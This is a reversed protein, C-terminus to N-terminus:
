VDRGGKKRILQGCVALFDNTSKQLTWYSQRLQNLSDLLFLCIDTLSIVEFEHETQNIQIQGILAAFDAPETEPLSGKLNQQQQSRKQAAASIFQNIKTNHALLADNPLRLHDLTIRGFASDAFTLGDPQPPKDM